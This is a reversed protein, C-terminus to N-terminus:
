LRPLRNVKRASERELTFQVGSCQQKVYTLFAEVQTKEMIVFTDDVYKLWIRIPYPFSSIAQCFYILSLRQFQPVCQLAM